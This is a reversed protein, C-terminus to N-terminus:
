LGGESQIRMPGKWIVHKGIEDKLVPPKTFLGFLSSGSGSMSAYIAGSDYLGQKMHQLIPHQSFVSKEFDNVILHKWQEVPELILETLYRDPIAPTIGAYAEATAVHINPFLLVLHLQDLDLGIPSLIEGRGEM